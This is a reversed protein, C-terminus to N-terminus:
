VVKRLFENTRIKPTKRTGKGILELEVLCRRYRSESIGLIGPIDKGHVKNHMKLIKDKFRKTDYRYLNDVTEMDVIDLLKEYGGSEDILRHIEQLCRMGSESWPFQGRMEENM